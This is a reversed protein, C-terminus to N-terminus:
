NEHTKKTADNVPSRHPIETTKYKPTYFLSENQKTNMETEAAYDVIIILM